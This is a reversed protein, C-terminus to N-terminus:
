VMCEEGSKPIEEIVFRSVSNQGTITNGAEPVAAPNNEDTVECAAVRLEVTYDGPLMTSNSYGNCIGVISAPRTLDYSADGPLSQSLAIDIPGPDSCEEGNVTLFWRMCCDNCSSLAINGDWAVRLATDASRKSFSCTQIPDDSNTSNDSIDRFENLPEDSM